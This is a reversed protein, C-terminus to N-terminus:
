TGQRPESRTTNSRKVQARRRGNELNANARDRAAQSVQIQNVVRAAGANKALRTATGKHQLVDTKGEMTAVGAQVHVTFRDKGIKSRALRARIDREIEADSRKPTTASATRRSPAAKGSTTTRSQSWAGATVALTLAVVTIIRRM